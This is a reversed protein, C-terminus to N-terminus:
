IISSASSIINIIKNGKIENIEIPKYTFFGCKIKLKNEEITYDANLFM